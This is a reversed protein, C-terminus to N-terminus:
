VLRSGGILEELLEDYEEELDKWNRFTSPDDLTDLNTIALNIMAERSTKAKYEKQLATIEDRIEKLRAEPTQNRMKIEQALMQIRIAYAPDRWLEVAHKPIKRHSTTDVSEFGQKMYKNLTVHSIGLSEAAEKPTLLYIEQYEFYIGEGGMHYYWQEIDVKMKGFDLDSIPLKVEKLFTLMKLMNKKNKLSLLYDKDFNFDNSEFTIGKLRNKSNSLLFHVVRDFVYQTEKGIKLVNNSVYAELIDNETNEYIALVM